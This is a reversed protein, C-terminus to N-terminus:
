SVRVCSGYSGGSGRSRLGSQEGDQGATCVGLQMSPQFSASSPAEIIPGSLHLLLFSSQSSLPRSHLKVEAM